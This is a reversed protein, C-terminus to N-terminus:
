NGALLKLDAEVMLKVLESFKVKPKWGLVKQAKTADGVLLEVESPRTFRSDFDVYDEVTGSLEAASLAAEVFERVTHTEGTAIVYDDPVEQQLMMWMAEVYEGAYGWDRKPTLDGLSFKDQHGM